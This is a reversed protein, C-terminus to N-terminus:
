SAHVVKQGRVWIRDAHTFADIDAQPVPAFAHRQATSGERCIKLRAVKGDVGQREIRMHPRTQGDESSYLILGTM